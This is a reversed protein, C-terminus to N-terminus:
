DNYQLTMRCFYPDGSGGRGCAVIFWAASIRHVLVTGINRTSKYSCFSYLTACGSCGCRGSRRSAIMASYKFPTFDLRSPGQCPAKPGNSYSTSVKTRTLSNFVKLPYMREWFETLGGEGLAPPPRWTPMGKKSGGADQAAASSAM